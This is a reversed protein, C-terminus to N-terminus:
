SAQTRGSGHDEGKTERFAVAFRKWRSCAQRAGTLKSHWRPTDRRARFIVADQKRAVREAGLLSIFERGSV